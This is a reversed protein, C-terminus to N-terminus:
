PMGVFHICPGPSSTRHRKNALDKRLKDKAAFRFQFAGPKGSTLSSGKLQVASDIDAYESSVLCLTKMNQKPM